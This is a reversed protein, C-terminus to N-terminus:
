TAACAHEHIHAHVHANRHVQKRLRTLEALLADTAKTAQDALRLANDRQTVAHELQKTRDDLTRELESEPDTREADEARGSWPWWTSNSSSSAGKDFLGGAAGQAAAASSARVHELQRELQKNREESAALRVDAAALMRRMQALEAVASQLQEHVSAGSRALTSSPPPPVEAAKRPTGGRPQRRVAGNPNGCGSGGSGGSGGDRKGSPPAAAHFASPRDRPQCSTGRNTIVLDPSSPGDGRASRPAAAPTSAGAVGHKVAIMQLAEKSAAHFLEKEDVGADRLSRKMGM